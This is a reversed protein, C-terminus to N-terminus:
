WSVAEGSEVERDARQTAQPNVSREAIGTLVEDARGEEDLTRQLLAADDAFGLQRAWTRATAYSAIEHHEMGQQAAIIFADITEPDEIDKLMTQAEKILARISICERRKAQFGRHEMIRHLREVHSESEHVHRELASRLQDNRVERALHPGADLMQEEADLLQQLKQEYLDRLSTADM